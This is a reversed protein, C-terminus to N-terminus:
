VATSREERRLNDTMELWQGDQFVVLMAKEGGYRVLMPQGERAERLWCRLEPDRHADPYNPDCWVQVVPIKIRQQGPAPEAEIFDPMIDIVYRSRDPRRIHQTTKDILWSCSWLYCSRPRNSYIACGNGHRQHQCRTGAPKHLEKVPVLKCCLTCEGCQRPMGPTPSIIEGNLPKGNM